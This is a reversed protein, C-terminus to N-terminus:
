NTRSNPSSFICREGYLGFAILTAIGIVITCLVQVSRWPYAQGGWSPGVLFLVCGAVFLIIGLLDLEKVAKWKTKGNVHLQKSTPPHYL